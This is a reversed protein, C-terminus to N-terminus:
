KKSFFGHEFCVFLCVFCFLFLVVVVYCMLQSVRAGDSTPVWALHESLLTAITTWIMERLSILEFFDIL